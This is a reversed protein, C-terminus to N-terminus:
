WSLNDDDISNSDVKNSRNVSNKSLLGINEKSINAEGICM